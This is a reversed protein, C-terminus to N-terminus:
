HLAICDGIRDRPERIASPTDAGHTGQADSSCLPLFNVGDRLLHIGVVGADHVVCEARM